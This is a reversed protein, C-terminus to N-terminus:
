QSRQLRYIADRQRRRKGVSFYPKGNQQVNAGIHVGLRLMQHLECYHALDVMPAVNLVLARTYSQKRDAFFFALGFSHVRSTCLRRLFTRQMIHPIYFAAM